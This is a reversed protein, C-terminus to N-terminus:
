PKPNLENKVWVWLISENEQATKRTVIYFFSSHEMSISEIGFASDFFFQGLIVFVAARLLTRERSKKLNLAWSETWKRHCITWQMWSVVCVANMKIPHKSHSLISFIDSTGNFHVWDWIGFKFIKCSGKHKPPTTNSQHSDKQIM